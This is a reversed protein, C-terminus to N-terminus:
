GSVEVILGFFYHSNKSLFVVREGKTLGLGLLSNSFHNVREYLERWTFRNEGFVLAMKEPFLRVNKRLIDGVVM